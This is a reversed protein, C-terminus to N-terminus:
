QERDNGNKLSLMIKILKSRGSKAYFREMNGNGYRM